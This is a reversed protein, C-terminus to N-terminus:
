QLWVQLEHTLCLSYQPRALMVHNAHLSCADGLFHCAEVETQLPLQTEIYAVRSTM